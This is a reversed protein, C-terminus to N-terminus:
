KAALKPGQRLVAADSPAPGTTAEIGVARAVLALIGPTLPEVTDRIREPNMWCFPNLLHRRDRLGVGIRGVEVTMALTGLTADLWDDMDGLVPYLHRAQRPRYSWPGAGVLAAALRLYEHARENPRETYAWPYLLLQGFSHFALSLRPRAAIAVGHVTRSEPESLAHPGLYHPSPRFRSGAFPHRMRSATLRPFNRNLDVGNANCRQWARKGASIRAMNSFFADPNVVPLVIIHAEDLLSRAAGDNRGLQEIADLLALSGIVEIGHMLASLLVVPRGPTGLDFRCIPRGQVSTGAM